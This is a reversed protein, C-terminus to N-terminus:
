LKSQLGPLASQEPGGCALLLALFDVRRTAIQVSAAFPKESNNNATTQRLVGRLQGLDCCPTMFVFVM